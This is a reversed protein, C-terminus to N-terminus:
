SSILHLQGGSSACLEQEQARDVAAQPRVPLAVAVVSPAHTGFGMRAKATPGDHAGATSYIYMVVHQQVVLPLQLALELGLFLWRGRKLSATTTAM